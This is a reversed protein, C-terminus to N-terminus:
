WFLYADGLPKRNCVFIQGYFLVTSKALVMLFLPFIRITGNVAHTPVISRSVAIPQAFLIPYGLILPAIFPIRRFGECFAHFDTHTPLAIAQWTFPFPFIRASRPAVGIIAKPLGLFQEPTIPPIIGIRVRSRPRHSRQLGVIKPQKIHM